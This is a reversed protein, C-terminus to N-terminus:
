TRRCWVEPDLPWAGSRQSSVASDQPHHRRIQASCTYLAAPTPARSRTKRAKENPGKMPKQDAKAPASCSPASTIGPPAMLVSCRARAIM